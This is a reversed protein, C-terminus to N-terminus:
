AQIAGYEDGERTAADFADQFAALAELANREALVRARLRLAKASDAEEREGLADNWREISGVRGARILGEGYREVLQRAENRLGALLLADIAAIIGPWDPKASAPRRATENAAKAAARTTRAAM